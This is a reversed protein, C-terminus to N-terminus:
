GKEGNNGTLNIVVESRIERFKAVRFVEYLYVKISIAAMEVFCNSTCGMQKQCSM